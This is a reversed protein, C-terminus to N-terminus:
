EDHPDGICIAPHLAGSIAAALETDMIVNESLPEEPTMGQPSEPNRRVIRPLGFPGFNPVPNQAAEALPQELELNYPPPACLVVEDVANLQGITPINHDFLIDGVYLDNCSVHHDPPLNRPNIQHQNLSMPIVQYALTHTVDTTRIQIGIHRCTANM